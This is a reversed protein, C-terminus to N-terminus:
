PITGGTGKRLDVQRDVAPGPFMEATGDPWVVRIGDVRDAAGLGFHARPDNSCLYSSAPNVVRLWRRSGATVTIEAGHADRGGLAPDVARVLLWHGRNPTANRYIRARDAIATAVLDVAGDGDLDGYALGRGNRRV